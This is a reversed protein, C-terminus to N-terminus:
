YFSHPSVLVPHSDSILFVALFSCQVCPSEDLIKYKPPGKTFLFSFLSTAVRSTGMLTGMIFIYKRSSSTLILPLSLHPHM